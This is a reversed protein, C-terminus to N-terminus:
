RYLAKEEIEFLYKDVTVAVQLLIMRQQTLRKCSDQLHVVFPKEKDHGIRVLQFFETLNDEPSHRRFEGYLYEVFERTLYKEAVKSYQSM